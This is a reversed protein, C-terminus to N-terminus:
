PWSHSLNQPRREHNMSEAVWEVSLALCKEYGPVEEMSSFLTDAFAIHQNGDAIELQVPLPAGNSQFIDPEEKGFLIGNGDISQGIAQIQRAGGQATQGTEVKSAYQYNTLIYPSGDIFAWTRPLGWSAQEM